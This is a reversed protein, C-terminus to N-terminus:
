AILSFSFHITKFTKHLLTIDFRSRRSSLCSNDRPWHNLRFLWLQYCGAITHELCSFRNSAEYRSSLCVVILLKLVAFRQNRNGLSNDITDYAANILSGAQSLLFSIASHYIMCIMIFYYPWSSQYLPMVKDYWRTQQINRFSETSQINASSSCFTCIIRYSGVLALWYPAPM